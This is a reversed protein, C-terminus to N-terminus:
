EFNINKDNNNEFWLKIKEDESISLLCEGYKPHIIKRLTLVSKSHKLFSKIEKENVLDILKIDGNKSGAFLYQENWLCIGYFETNYIYIKKILNGSHFEWILIYGNQSSSIIKIIKKSRLIIISSYSDKKNDINIYTHYLEDKEFDYSKVSGYNGTLIYNKNSNNDYFVDVISTDDNSNKIKKIKNGKLDFVLLPNNVLNFSQNSVIIYLENNYNLICASTLHGEKYINSVYLLCEMTFFNWLKFNNDNSMSLILDRKNNSDYYYRFNSIYSHHANRMECMKKCDNLNYTIISHGDSYILYYENEHNFTIISNDRGFFIYSDDVIDISYNINKPFSKLELSDTISKKKFIKDKSNHRSDGM